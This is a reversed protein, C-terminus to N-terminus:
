YGLDRLVQRMNCASQEYDEVRCDREVMIWGSFGIEELADMVGPLDLVGTGLEWFNPGGKDADGVSAPDLDKLHVYRCREGLDRITEVPDSGCLLLHGTDPCAYTGPRQDLYQLMDERTEVAGKGRNQVSLHNHITIIVGREGAYDVWRACEEKPVGCRVIGAGAAAAYDITEQIGGSGGLAACQLGLAECKEKVVEAPEGINQAKSEFGEYGTEKTLRLRYDLDTNNEHDLNYFHHGIRM